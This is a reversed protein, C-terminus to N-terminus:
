VQTAQLASKVGGFQAARELKHVLVLGTPTALRKDLQGTEALELGLQAGQWLVRFSRDGSRKLHPPERVRLRPTRAKLGAALDACDAALAAFEGLSADEGLALFAVVIIRL